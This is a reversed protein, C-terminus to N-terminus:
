RRGQAMTFRSRKPLREELGNNMDFQLLSVISPLTVQQGPPTSAKNGRQVKLTEERGYIRGKHIGLALPRICMACPTKLAIFTLLHVKGPVFEVKM